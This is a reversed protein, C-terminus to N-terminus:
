VPEAPTGRAQALRTARDSWGASSYVAGLSNRSVLTDPSDEGLVRARGALAQEVPAGARVLRGAAAYSKGLGHRSDLTGPDDAGLVRERIALNQDHKAIAEA